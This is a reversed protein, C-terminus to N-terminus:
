LVFLEHQPDDASGFEFGLVARADLAEALRKLMRFSTARQGREIRSIVSVSTNMRAALEAQTLRLTARRMTVIRALAEFPALREYEARYEPDQLSQKIDDAVSIGIPSIHESM